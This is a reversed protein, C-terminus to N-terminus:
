SAAHDWGSFLSKAVDLRRIAQPPVVVAREMAGQRVTCANVARSSEICNDTQYFYTKLMGTQPSIFNNPMNAGLSVVGPNVDFRL